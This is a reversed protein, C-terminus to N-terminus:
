PLPGEIVIQGFCMAAIVSVILALFFIAGITEGHRDLFSILSTM